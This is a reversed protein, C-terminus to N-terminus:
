RSATAGHWGPPQPRDGRSPPWQIPERAADIMRPALKARAPREPRVVEDEDEYSDAEDVYVRGREVHLRLWRREPEAAPRCKWCTLRRRDTSEPDGAVRDLKFGLEVSAGIATSGRYDGAGKSLHHLLLGAAGEARMLNRLPDLVAAVAATDNEDGGPWLARLSDLLVFTPHLERLLEALENLDRGLHFGDAEYVSVGSGPLGLAHVRRHIEYRGNEADILLASGQECDLGGISEGAAVGAALSVGLLSKGEGERGSLLTLCGAVALGEIIWPVPPPQERVMEGVDLPRLTRRDDAQPRTGNRHDLVTEAEDLLERLCEPDGETDVLVALDDHGARRLERAVEHQDRERETAAIGVPKDPITFM